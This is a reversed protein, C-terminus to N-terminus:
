DEINTFRVDVRREIEAAEGGVGGCTRRHWFYRGVKRARLRAICEYYRLGPVPPAVNLLRRGRAEASRHGIDACEGM